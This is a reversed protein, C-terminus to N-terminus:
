DGVKDLCLVHWHYKRDKFIEYPLFCIVRACVCVVCLMSYTYFNSHNSDWILVVECFFFTFKLFHRLCLSIWFRGLFPPFYPWFCVYYSIGKKWLICIKSKNLFVSIPFMHCLLLLLYSSHFISFCIHCGNTWERYKM